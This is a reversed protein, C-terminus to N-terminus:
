KKGKKGENALSYHKECAITLGAVFPVFEEFDLEDDKNEDLDKLITDLTDPNKQSKLFTPLEGEILKKLEKKSLTNKNGGEKAYRHFVTILSEMAKELDTM